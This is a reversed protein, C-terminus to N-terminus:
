YKNKEETMKGYPTRAIAFMGDLLYGLEQYMTVIVTLNMMKIMMMVTHVTKVPQQLLNMSTIKKTLILKM